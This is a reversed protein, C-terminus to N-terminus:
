KASLVPNGLLLEFGTVGAIKDLIDDTAQKFKQDPRILEYQFTLKAGNQRYKLRATIPYTNEGGIFVPIGITFREFVEMQTRTDKDEDDVYELQVGGGQLNIKQKYRKESNREFNTAMSLMMTGTPMGEVSVIDTINNELWAAFEEQSMGTADKSSWRDWEVSKKPTFSATHRRWKTDAPDAGNDDIVAIISTTENVQNVSAYVVCNDLSGHKKIYSIFSDTTDMIVAARKRNPFSKFREMSEIKYGDPVVAYDALAQQSQGLAAGIDLLKKISIEDM